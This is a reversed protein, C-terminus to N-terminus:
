HKPTLNSISQQPWIEGFRRPSANGVTAETTTQVSWRRLSGGGGGLDAEAATSEVGCGSWNM